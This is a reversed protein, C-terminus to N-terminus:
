TLHANDYVSYIKIQLTFLFVCLVCKKLTQTTNVLLRHQRHFTCKQEFHKMM